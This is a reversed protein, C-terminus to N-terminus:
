HMTATHDKHVVIYNKTNTNQLRCKPGTLNTM